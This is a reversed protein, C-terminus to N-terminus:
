RTEHWAKTPRTDPYGYKTRYAKREETFNWWQKDSDPHPAFYVVLRLCDEVCPDMWCGYLKELEDTLEAGDKDKLADMSFYGLAILDEAMRPGISPIQQFSALANLTKARKASVDLITCLQDTPVNVIDAVKLKYKRLKTREDDRLPLKISM